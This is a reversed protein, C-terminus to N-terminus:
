LNEYISVRGIENPDSWVTVGATMIDKIAQQAGELANGEGSCWVESCKWYSFHKMVQLKGMQWQQNLMYGYRLMTDGASAIMGLPQTVVQAIFANPRTTAFGPAVSGYEIPARTGLQALHNKIASVATDHTRGANADSTARTNAANTKILSANNSAISTNMDNTISTITSRLDNQLGTSQNNYARAVQSKANNAGITANYMVESNSQSVVNSNNASSWGTLTSSLGTVAGIGAALAGAPGAAVGLAVSGALAIGASMARADNNTAAVALGAQETMYGASTMANDQIQMQASTSGSLVAGSTATANQATTNSSNAAVTVANNATVNSAANNQNTQATANSANASALANDAALRQQRREYNQSWDAEVAGAQAIEFTPIDWAFIYELSSGSFRARRLDLNNIYLSFDSGGVGLVRGDIRISPFALSASAALQIFGDTDEIRILSSSGSADTVRIASFPMTYLKAIDAYEEPYGFDGKTIGLVDFTMESADLVRLTHGLFRMSSKISVLRKPVFFLAKVCAKFAPAQSDVADMFARADSVEIAYVAPAPVGQSASFAGAPTANTYADVSGWSQSPNAFTSFCLWMDGDSFNVAGTTRAISPSESAAPEPELLFRNNDIPNRLYDSASTAAMPAHGRELMVYDFRMQYIYTQWVDLRMSFYTVSPSAQSADDLFYLYRRIAPLEANEIPRTESTPVPLDAVLYNYLQANAIPLPLKIASDNKVQVMSSDVYAGDLSDLYADRAEASEFDVVNDYDGCWPVNVVRYRARSDTWRDYDFDNKYKYVDVNDVGPFNTAGRLHPFRNFDAM